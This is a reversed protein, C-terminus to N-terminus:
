ITAAAKTRIIAAEGGRAEQPPRRRGGSAVEDDYIGADDAEEKLAEAECGGKSTAAAKTRGVDAEGGRAKTPPVTAGAARLRTM